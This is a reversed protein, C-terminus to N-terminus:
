AFALWEPKLLLLGGVGLLVVGGVLNSWRAYRGTLGTVHLTLLAAALVVLDDAMFVFVYLVLYAYYQWAPLANLALLQTYVAPIGASCLLEVLNVAFALLVIGGLALWLEERQSLDRLRAFVRQRREPRTVECAAPQNRVFERLYYGGGALAVFGIAVRILTLTGLFLMVNLWAALFVFYIAGSAVVFAGGLLWMRRRDKLGALLGLLFVLVWMACPNFGDLAGLVVTLAPLSLAATRVEGVLPLRVTEPLVVRASAPTPATPHAAPPPIDAAGGGRLLPKVSDPCDQRLCTEIRAVLERGTSADDGYGVFVVDGIVTLPIASVDVGLTSGVERLLAAHARNRIVEFRHVRMAPKEAAIEDLFAIEKECHPCGERWFLYVDLMRAFPAPAQPAAVAAGLALWLACVIRPLRLLPVPLRCTCVAHINEGKVQLVANM